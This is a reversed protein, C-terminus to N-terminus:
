PPPVAGARFWVSGRWGKSFHWDLREWRPDLKFISVTPVPERPLPRLRLPIEKGETLRSLADAEINIENRWHQGSVTEAGTEELLLAIEAALRNAKPHPSAMKVAIRIAAENDLQVLIGIRCRRLYRRWVYMSILLALLEYVTMLGPEGAVIGLAELAWQPIPSALWVVPRNYADLLIGGLGTTSADTRIVWQPRTWRDTLLRTRQLGGHHGLLFQKMWTLPLRITKAFVSGDPRLRAKSKCTKVAEQQKDM